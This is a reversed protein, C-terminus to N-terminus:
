YFPIALRPVVLVSTRRGCTGGVVVYLTGHESTGMVKAGHGIMRVCRRRFIRGGTVTVEGSIRCRSGGRSLLSICRRAGSTSM